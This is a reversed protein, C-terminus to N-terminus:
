RPDPYHDGERYQGYTDEPVEICGHQPHKPDDENKLCLQWSAPVHNHVTDYAICVPVSGVNMHAVCYTTDYSYADSHQKHTVYGSEPPPDSCGALALLVAAM